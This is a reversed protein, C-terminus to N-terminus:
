VSEERSFEVQQYTKRVYSQFRSEQGGSWREGPPVKRVGHPSGVGVGARALPVRTVILSKRGTEKNKEAGQEKM